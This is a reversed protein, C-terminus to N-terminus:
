PTVELCEWALVWGVPRTAELDESVTARGVASDISTVVGVKQGELPLMFVVKSGVDPRVQKMVEANQVMWANNAARKASHTSFGDLHSVLQADIAWGEYDLERAAEYGDKHGYQFVKKIDAKEGDDLKDNWKEYNEVWEAVAADIYGARKPRAPIM